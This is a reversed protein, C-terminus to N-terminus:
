AVSERIQDTPRLWRYRDIIGADICETGSRIAEMACENLLRRLNGLNGGCIHFLLKANDRQYLRSPKKLPLVAENDKLLKQFDRNLEWPPLSRVDFRSALQPDTQLVRLAARTGVGVIPIALEAGLFKIVTQLQRQKAGSGKSQLLDHIDDIILMRVEHRRLLHIVLYRLKSVPDTERYPTAFRQLISLYLGKEDAEPPAQAVIVPKIAKPEGTISSAGCVDVFRRVLTTKGNNSEGVILLNITRVQTPMTLLRQLQDLMASARDYGIWRPTQVFEIREDSSGALMHRFEPAIHPYDSM